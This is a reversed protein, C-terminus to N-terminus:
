RRFLSTSSKPLSSRTIGRQHMNQYVPLRLFRGIVLSASSDYILNDNTGCSGEMFPPPLPQQDKHDNNQYVCQQGQVCMGLIKVYSRLHLLILLLDSTPHAIKHTCTTLAKIAGNGPHTNYTSICQVQISTFHVLISSTSNTIFLHLGRDSLYTIATDLSVKVHPMTCVNM